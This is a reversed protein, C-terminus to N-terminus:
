IKRKLIIASILAHRKDLRLSIEIDGDLMWTTARYGSDESDHTKGIYEGAITKKIEDYHQETQEKKTLIVGTVRNNKLVLLTTDFHRSAFEAPLSFTLYTKAGIGEDDGLYVADPFEALSSGWDIGGFGQAIPPNKEQDTQPSPTENPKKLQFFVVGFLLMALLIKISKGPKKM